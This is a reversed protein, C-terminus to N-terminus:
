GFDVVQLDLPLQARHPGALRSRDVPAVRAVPSTTDTLVSVDGVVGQGTFATFVFPLGNSQLPLPGDM